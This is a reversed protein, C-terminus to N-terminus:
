PKVTRRLAVDDGVIWMEREGSPDDVADIAHLHNVLPALKTPAVRAVQWANGDFRRVVGFRGVLWVDDSRRGWLGEPQGYEEAVEFSWAHAGAVTIPGRKPDLKSADDAVRAALGTDFLQTQLALIQIGDTTSTGAAVATADAIKMPVTDWTVDDGAARRRATFTQKVNTCDPPACYSTESGAFWTDAATGWVATIRTFAVADGFSSPVTVAVFPSASGATAATLHYAGDALLWVDAPSSGRIRTVTQSTDIAVPTFTTAGASEEGHLVLGSEGGVWVETPSAGWVARLGASAVHVIKWEAGDWRLVHGAASVAWARRDPSAWVDTLSMPEPLKTICWGDASCAPPPPSGADGPAGGDVVGPGPSPDIRTEGSPEHAVEPPDGDACGLLAVLVAAPLARPRRSM